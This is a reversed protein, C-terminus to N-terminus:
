KQQFVSNGKSDIGVLVPFQYVELQLLAEPGLDAFAVVSVSQVTKAYLAGCGGFAVFYIGRNRMIAQKVADNRPGKGITAVLGADYLDSTFPDMRSATTPGCSGIVMGEPTAAPGMYYITQGAVSIPLKQGNKQADSFRQHVQDRGVLLTGTLLVREYARLSLRDEDCLPLSLERMM